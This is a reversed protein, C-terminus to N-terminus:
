DSNFSAMTQVSSVSLLTFASHSDQKQLIDSVDACVSIILFLHKYGDSSYEICDSMVCVSMYKHVCVCIFFAQAVQLM